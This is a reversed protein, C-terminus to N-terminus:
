ACYLRKRGEGIKKFSKRTFVDIICRRKILSLFAACGGTPTTHTPMRRARLTPMVYDIPACTYYSRKKSSSSSSCGSTSTLFVVAVIPEFEIRETKNKVSFFLSAPANQLLSVIYITAIAAGLWNREKRRKPKM